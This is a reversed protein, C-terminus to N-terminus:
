TADLDAGQEDQEIYRETAEHVFSQRTLERPQRGPAIVWIKDPLPPPVEVGARLYFTGFLGINVVVRQDSAPTSWFSILHTPPPAVWTEPPSAETPYTFAPSGNDSTPKQDWLWRRLRAADESDLWADDVCLSVSALVMKAAARLWVVGDIKLKVEVENFQDHSMEESQIKLDEAALQKVLRERLRKAEELSGAAITAGDETRDIKSRVIPQWNRDVDVVVEPQGKRRADSKGTRPKGSAKRRSSIVEHLIKTQAVLWDDQLPGDIERGARQNCDRCVRDTELTGGLAAPIVHEPPDDVRLKAEGCYWCRGPRGESM